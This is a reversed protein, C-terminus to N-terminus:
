SVSYQIVFSMTGAAGTAAVATLRLSIDYLIEPDSSEGLVEWLRKGINHAAPASGGTFDTKTMGATGSDTLTVATNVAGTVGLVAQSITVVAGDVTATFRTGSPGSSTNICNMLNTATANNSTTSEWTGAVSSQDGNVFNYNTGDTAILNVKDGTNLEAYATITVTATAAVGAAEIFEVGAGAADGWGTTVASGFADADKVTGDTLYIGCDTALTPSGNTDLEDSFIMISSIRVSSHLRTLEIVDNVDGIDEAVIEFADSSTRLSGSEKGYETVAPKPLDLNTIINSKKVGVAM